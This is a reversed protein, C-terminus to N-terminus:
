FSRGVKDRDDPMLSTMVREVDDYKAYTFPYIGMKVRPKRMEWLENIPRVYRKSKNEDADSVNSSSAMDKEVKLELFRM